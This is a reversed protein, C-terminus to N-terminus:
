APDLSFFRMGRDFFASPPYRRLCRDRRPACTVGGGAVESSLLENL